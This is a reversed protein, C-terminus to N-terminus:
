HIDRYIMFLVYCGTAAWGLLMWMGFWEPWWGHCSWWRPVPRGGILTAATLFLGMLPMTYVICSLATEGGSAIKLRMLAIPPALGWCGLGLAFWQMAGSRWRRRGRARAVLLMPTGVLSIGGLLAVALVIWAEESPKEFLEAFKLKDHFLWLGVAVGAILTMADLITLQDRPASESM